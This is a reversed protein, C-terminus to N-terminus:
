DDADTASTMHPAQGMWPLEVPSAVFITGGTDRWAVLVPGSHDAAQPPLGAVYPGDIIVGSWGLREALEYARRRWREYSEWAASRSLSDYGRSLLQAQYETENLWGPWRDTGDCAYLFQPM